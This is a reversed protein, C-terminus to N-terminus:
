WKSAPLRSMIMEELLAPSNLAVPHAGTLSEILRVEMLNVDGKMRTAQLEVEGMDEDFDIGPGIREQMFKHVMEPHNRTFNEAYQKRFEANAKQDRSRSRRLFDNARRRVAAFLTEPSKNEADIQKVKEKDVLEALINRNSEGAFFPDPALRVIGARVWPSLRKLFRLNQFTDFRRVEFDGLASNMFSYQSEFPDILIIEDAYLSMRSIDNWM